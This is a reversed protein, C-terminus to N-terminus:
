RLFCLRCHITTASSSVPHVGLAVREAADPPPAEAADPSPVPDAATAAAGLVARIDVAEAVGGTVLEGIAATELEASGPGAPGTEPLGPEAVAPGPRCM